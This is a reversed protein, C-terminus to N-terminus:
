ASNTPLTKRPYDWIQGSHGLRKRLTITKQQLEKARFPWAPGIAGVSGDSQRIALNLYFWGKNYFLVTKQAIEDGYLDRLAARYEDMVEFPIM